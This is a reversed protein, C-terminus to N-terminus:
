AISDGTVAVTAFFLCWLTFTCWECVRYFLRSSSCHVTGGVATGALMYGLVGPFQNELPVAM